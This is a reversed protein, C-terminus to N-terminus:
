QYTSASVTRTPTSPPVDVSDARSVSGTAGMALRKGVITRYTTLGSAAATTKYEGRLELHRSQRCLEARVQEGAGGGWMGHVHVSTVEM